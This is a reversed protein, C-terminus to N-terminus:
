DDARETLARQREVFGLNFGCFWSNRKEIPWQHFGRPYGGKERPGPYEQLFGCREGDRFADPWARKLRAREADAAHNM